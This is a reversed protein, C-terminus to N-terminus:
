VEKLDALFVPNHVAVYALELAAKLAFDRVLGRDGGLPKLAKAEDGGHALASRYGYLKKWIKASSTGSSDVSQYDLPKRFMRELLPIKTSVQHTLSDYDGHPNHTILSEIVAFLGLCYM